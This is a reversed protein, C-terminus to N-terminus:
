EGLYTKALYNMREIQWPSFRKAQASMSDVFNQEWRHLHEIIGCLENCQRRAKTQVEEAAQIMAPPSTTTVNM